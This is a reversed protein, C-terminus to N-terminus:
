FSRMSIERSCRLYLYVFDMWHVAFLGCKRCNDFSNGVFACSLEYIKMSSVEHAIALHFFLIKIYRRQQKRIISQCERFHPFFFIWTLQLNIEVTNREKEREKM